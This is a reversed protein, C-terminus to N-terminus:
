RAYHSAEKEIDRITQPDPPEIDIISFKIPNAELLFHVKQGGYHRDNMILAGQFKTGGDFFAQYDMAAVDVGFSLNGDEVRFLKATRIGDPPIVVWDMEYRDQGPWKFEIPDRLSNGNDSTLAVLEASVIDTSRCSLNKVTLCIHQHIKGNKNFSKPTGGDIVTIDLNPTLRQRLRNLRVREKIERDPISTLVRFIYVLPYPLLPAAIALLRLEIERDAEGAGVFQFVLLVYIAFIISATMVRETAIRLDSNTARKADSFIARWVSMRNM